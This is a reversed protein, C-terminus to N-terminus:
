GTGSLHPIPDRSTKTHLRSLGSSARSKTQHIRQTIKADSLNSSAIWTLGSSSIMFSSPINPTAHCVLTSRLLAPVLNTTEQLPTWSYLTAQDLISSRSCTRAQCLNRSGLAWCVNSKESGGESKNSSQATSANRQKRLMAHHDDQPCSQSRSSGSLAWNKSPANRYPWMARHLREHLFISQLSRAGLLSSLGLAARGWTCWSCSM